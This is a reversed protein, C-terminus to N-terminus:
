KFGKGKLRARKILGEYQHALLHSQVQSITDITVSVVILLSTGGLYFPLSVRSLIIEPIVCVSALYLSGVVTLRTLLYDIHSATAAGPRVGPLYAGSKRLNEATENPNFVMATYLFSFFIIMSVFATIYVPNGHSFYHAISSLWSTRDVGAFGVFTAPMLLLSSAFIPPIVGSSNLKLPLHSTQASAPRDVAVQRKPYQILVRRQAREMFVIYAIVVAVMILIMLLVMYSLAGTRGLELTNILAQPLNAVIGSFIIISSGNGIGRSTIQEGLWMIFLTGGTLTIVTMFRFVFGPILVAPGSAGSIKELGMAIGFAQVSALLVTAYRTYQTIKRRGVEGEKKMAELRPSVSTMLNMIISATIYPMINLTFITMRGVAGGSFMDLVGLIGGANSRTFESIIDPNVGPLPVYTGLRYVVLVALTFWIRKKLDDAKAFTNFSIGSAFQEIASSM